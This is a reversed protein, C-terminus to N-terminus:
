KKEGSTVPPYEKISGATFTSPGMLLALQKECREIRARLRINNGELSRIAYLFYLIYAVALLFLIVQGLENIM